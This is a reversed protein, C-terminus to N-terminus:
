NHIRKCPRRSWDNREYIVVPETPEPEGRGRSNATHWPGGKIRGTFETWNLEERIKKEENWQANRRDNEKM